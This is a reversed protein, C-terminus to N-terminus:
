AYDRSAAPPASLGPKNRSNTRLLELIYEKLESLELNPPPPLHQGHGLVWMTGEPTHDGTRPNDGDSNELKGWPTVIRRVPQDRSWELLLDPLQTALPGDFTDRTRIASRFIPANSEGERLTLMVETFAHLFSDTADPHLLGKPERGVLNM